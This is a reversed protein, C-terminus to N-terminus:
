RRAEFSKELRQHARALADEEIGLHEVDALGDALAHAAGGPAADAEDGHMAVAVDDAGCDLPAAAAFQADQCDGGQGAEVLGSQALEAVAATDGIEDAAPHRFADGPAAVTDNRAGVVD